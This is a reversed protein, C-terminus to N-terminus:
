PNRTLPTPDPADPRCRETAVLRRELMLTAAEPEAGLEDLMAHCREITRRSARQGGAELQASALVCYARESWPELELVQTALEASRIIRGAALALEATRTAARVYRLRVRERETEAWPAEMGELLPGRWTAVAAEYAELAISLVGSREADTAREVHRDLDWVDVRLRDHGTLALSAGHQDIFYAPENSGRGPQLVALLYSLTTRLNNAATERDLEPWLADNVADRTTHPHLVLFGLLQRVRDRRWAGTDQDAGDIRLCPPGLLDVQVTHDPVIAMDALLRRAASRLAKDLPRDAGATALREVWGRADPGLGALLDPADDRGAAAAAVALHVAWPLPMTPRVAAPSLAPLLAVVDLAELADGDCESPERLAVLARALSRTLALTGHLDDDDWFGRTEPVLVYTLGLGRRHGRRTAPTGVGGSPIAEVLAQRAAAEDDDLLALAAVAFAHRVAVAPTIPAGLRDAVTLFERALAARGVFAARRASQAAGSQLTRGTWRREREDKMREDDDVVEDVHGLAWRVNDRTAAVAEGTRGASVPTGELLPLGDEPRGLAELLEARHLDRFARPTGDLRNVDIADLEALAGEFDGQLDALLARGLSALFSAQPHGAGELEMGRGIADVLLDDRGAHTGVACLHTLCAVEGEIDGRGDRERFARAAALLPEVAAVLRGERHEAIVGRLLLLEPESAALDGGDELRDAWAELQDIPLPPYGHVCTEAVVALAQDRGGAAVYLDFARRRDHNRVHHDAARGCAANVVEHAIGALLPERWLSHLEVRDASTAVLPLGEVLAALDVPQGVAASFTAQDAGGIEALLALQERRQPSLEGLIEDWLFGHTAARPASATLEALAPWRGVGSLEATPVSRLTAFAAVEDDTFALDDETLRVARGQVVLRALAVPPSRRGSFLLHGHPPLGDVVRELLQAGASGRPVTHVDDLVLCIAVPAHATIAALVTDGLSDPESWGAPDPAGLGACLAAALTSATAHDGSCPVLVDLGSPEVENAALAQALLTTKGFGAGGVIVTVPRHWRGAVVAELRPRPVREHGGPLPAILDNITSAAAPSTASRDAM